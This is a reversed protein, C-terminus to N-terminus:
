TLDAPGPNTKATNRPAKRPLDFARGIASMLWADNKMMLEAQRLDHTSENRKLISNRETRSLDSCLERITQVDAAYAGAAEIGMVRFTVNTAENEFYKIDQICGRYLCLFFYAFFEILLVFTTRTFIFYPLKAEDLSRFEISLFHSFFALGTICAVAGISLNLYALAHLKDTRKGLSRFLM